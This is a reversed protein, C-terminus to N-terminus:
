EVLTPGSPPATTPPKAPASPRATSRPGPTPQQTAVPSAADPPPAPASAEASAPCPACSPPTPAPPCANAIPATPASEALGAHGSGWTASGAAGLVLAFLAGGLAVAPRIGPAPPRRVVETADLRPDFRPDIAVRPEGGSPAASSPPAIVVHESRASAVDAPKDVAAPAPVAELDALKEQLEPRALMGEAKREAEKEERARDLHPGLVDRLSDRPEAM